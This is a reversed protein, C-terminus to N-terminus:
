SRRSAWPTAPAPSTRSWPAPPYGTPRRAWDRCLHNGHGEAIVALEVDEGEVV